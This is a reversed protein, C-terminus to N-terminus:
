SVMEARMLDRELTEDLDHIFPIQGTCNIELRDSHLRDRVLPYATLAQELEGRLTIFALASNREPNIWEQARQPDVDAPSQVHTVRADERLPALARAMAEKFEASAPDLGEARFHAVFTTETRRGIVSEVLRDARDAELNKVSGSTLRAGRLLMAVSGALFLGACILTLWRFRYIIAGLAHFM